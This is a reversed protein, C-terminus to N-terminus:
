GVSVPSRETIADCEPRAVHAAAAITHSRNIISVVAHLAKALAGRIFGTDPSCWDGASFIGQLNKGKSFHSEYNGEFPYWEDLTSSMRFAQNWTATFRKM